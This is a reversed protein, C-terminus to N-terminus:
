ARSLCAIPTSWYVYAVDGRGEARAVERQGAEHVGPVNRAGCYHGRLAVRDRVAHLHQRPPGHNAEPGRVRDRNARDVLEQGKLPPIVVRAGV